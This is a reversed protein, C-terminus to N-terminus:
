RKLFYGVMGGALALILGALLGWLRQGWSQRSEKIDATERELLTLRHRVAELQTRVDERHMAAKEAEKEVTDLRTRLVPVVELLKDIKESNTPM